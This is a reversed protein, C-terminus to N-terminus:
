KTHTPQKDDNTRMREEKKIALSTGAGRGVVVLAAHSQPSRAEGLSLQLWFM